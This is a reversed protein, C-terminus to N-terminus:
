MSALAARGSLLATAQDKRRIARLMSNVLPMARNLKECNTNHRPSTATGRYFPGAMQHMEYLCDKGSEIQDDWKTQDGVELSHLISGLLTKTSEYLM